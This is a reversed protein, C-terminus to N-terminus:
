LGGIQQRLVEITDGEQLNVDKPTDTDQLKVGNHYFRLDTRSVSQKAAFHDFIKKLQTTPKVRFQMGNDHDDSVKITIKEETDVMKVDKKEDNNTSNENSM